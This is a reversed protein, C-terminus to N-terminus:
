ELGPSFEGAVKQCIKKVVGEYTDNELTFWIIGRNKKFWTLQRKAFRRTDRKLLAVAEDLGAKGQLYLLMHRYGLGQLPKLHPSYGKALLGETEELLGAEMMKDVREEIRSYLEERPRNIGIVLSKYDPKQSKTDLVQRHIPKGTLYFVELARITRRLDHPHINAASEPDLDKLKRYLAGSGGEKAERALRARIDPTKSGPSFRYNYVVANFYLGTGGVLLPLNGKKAVEAIAEGAEKQYRSVNYDVTPEVVDVLHHPVQEREKLTPKATGIDLHRYVQMSDASIIEGHLRLAVEIALATKGVATPGAVALLPIM